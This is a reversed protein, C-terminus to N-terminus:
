SGRPLHRPPVARPVLVRPAHIRVAWIRPTRRGDGRLTVRLKCTAGSPASSFCSGVFGSRSVCRHGPLPPVPDRQRRRAPVPQTRAALGPAGAGDPRRRHPERGRDHMWGPDRRRARASALCHPTSRRRLRPWGVSRAGAHRSCGVRLPRGPPRPDSVLTRRPRLVGGCGDSVLGKGSFLRLPHYSPVLEAGDELVEFEFVQDGRDDVM